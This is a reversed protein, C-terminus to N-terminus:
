TAVMTNQTKVFKRTAFLKRPWRHPPSAVVRRQFIHRHRPSSASIQLTSHSNETKVRQLAPVVLSRVFPIHASSVQEDDVVLGAAVYHPRSRSADGAVQAVRRAVAIARMEGSEESGELRVGTLRGRIRANRTGPVWADGGVRSDVRM